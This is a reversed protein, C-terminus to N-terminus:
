LKELLSCLKRMGSQNNYNIFAFFEDQLVRLPNKCAYKIGMMLAQESNDVLLGFKGNCLASVTGGSKTAMVPVGIALAEWLVLGLAEKRSPLLLLDSSRIYPYPNTKMGLFVIEMDDGALQKCMQMEPGDGVILLRFNFGEFHCQRTASILRDVGKEKSLRGVYIYTPKSSKKIPPLAHNSLANVYNCDFQNGVVELSISRGGFSCWSVQVEKTIAVLEKFRSLNRTSLFFRLRDPWRDRIESPLYHFWGLVPKKTYNVMYSYDPASYVVFIDHVYKRAFKVYFYYNTLLNILNVIKFLLFNRIGNKYLGGVLYKRDFAILNEENSHQIVARVCFRGTQELAKAISNFASAEGGLTARPVFFLITQKERM